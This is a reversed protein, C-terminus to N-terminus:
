VPDLLDDGVFGAGEYVLPAAAIRFRGFVSSDVSVGRPIKEQANKKQSLLNCWFAFRRHMQSCHLGVPTWFLCLERDIRNKQNNPEDKALDHM